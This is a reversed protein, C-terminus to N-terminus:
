NGRLSSYPDLWDAYKMRIEKGDMNLWVYARGESEYTVTYYSEDAFVLYLVGPESTKSRLRAVKTTTSMEHGKWTTIQIYAMLDFSMFLEISFYDGDFMGNTDSSKGYTSWKDAVEASDALSAASLLMAVALILATLKKM